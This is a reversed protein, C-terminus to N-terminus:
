QQFFFNTEVTDNDIAEVEELKGNRMTYCSYGLDAMFSIVDNPHYGFRKAHKRLLECYVLPKETELTRKAGELVFKENGEVDIKIFTINYLNNEHVFSDVTSVKCKVVETRPKGTYKGYNDCDKLYFEDDVPQLSAAESTSPMYFDFAGEENSMGLNHTHYNEKSAGNLKATAELRAYTSPLPEFVHYNLRNNCGNLELSFMGVNAGIDLVNGNEIMKLYNKVYEMDDAEPDEGMLLDIEARCISQTFDFFMKLGNEKELICYDGDITISKCDDSGAIMNQLQPLVSMYNERMLTWYLKKDIRGGKFMESMEQMTM